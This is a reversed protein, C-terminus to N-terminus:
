LRIICEPGLLPFYPLLEQRRCEGLWTPIWHLEVWLPQQIFCNLFLKQNDVPTILRRGVFKSRTISYPICDMLLRLLTGKILWIWELKSLMLLITENYPKLFRSHFQKINQCSGRRLLMVFNDSINSLSVIMIISITISGICLLVLKTSFIWSILSCGTLLRLNWSGKQLIRAMDSLVTQHLQGIKATSCNVKFRTKFQKSYRIFKVSITYSM